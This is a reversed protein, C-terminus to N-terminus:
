RWPPPPPDLQKAFFDISPEGSDSYAITWNDDRDDWIALARTLNTFSVDLCVILRCHLRQHVPNGNRSNSVLVMKFIKPGLPPPQNWSLQTM